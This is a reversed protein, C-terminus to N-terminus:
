LVAPALTNNARFGTGLNQLGGGTTPKAARGIKEADLSAGTRRALNMLCSLLGFRDMWDTDM